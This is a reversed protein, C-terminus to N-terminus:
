RLLRLAAFGAILLIGFAWALRDFHRDIFGQIPRGYFYVLGAVIFFRAGRSIASAVLFIPFSIQFVGAALTFVKYPLPTFGALFVAWFDWRRYLDQVAAFSEPTVGPVSAFFFGGVQEWVFWGLAYGLIGGAISGVTCIAAFRLARGPSGLSLALLLPDPPIPFVSSEAFAIGGLAAPGGPREAWSLVWHYLRRVPNRSRPPATEQTATENM